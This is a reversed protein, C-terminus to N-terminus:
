LQGKGSLASTYDWQLIFLPQFRDMGNEAFTYLELHLKSFHAEGSNIKHNNELALM